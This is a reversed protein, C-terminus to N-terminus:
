LEKLFQTKNALVKYNYKCIDKAKIIFEELDKGKLNAIREIENAIMIMRTGDDSVYDYREDIIEGFTKYGLKCFLELSNPVSVLIFPHQMAIPKFAKESLFRANPFWENQFYTTESVVSFYSNEYYKNTNITSEARNIHLENTDLYLPPLKKVDKYANLVERMKTDHRFYHMLEPWKHNWNDKDDCEGFSIYGKDILGKGYLLTILLPRHTRWRRNLNLFSKPYEKLELTKPKLDRNGDRYTTHEAALHLDQEFVTYWFIRIPPLGLDNSIDTSYKKADPMNTLFIIQGSPIGLRKVLDIYISDISKLFPELTNDLVIFAKHQKVLQLTEQDILDLFNILSFSKPDSFLCYWFDFDFRPDQLLTDIAATTDTTNVEINNSDYTNIESITKNLLRM